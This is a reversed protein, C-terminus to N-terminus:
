LPAWLCVLGVQFGDQYPSGQGLFEMDQFLFFFLERTDSCGDPTKPCQGEWSKM